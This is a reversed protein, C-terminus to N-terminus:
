LFLFSFAPDPELQKYVPALRSLPLMNLQHTQDTDGTITKVKKKQSISLFKLIM